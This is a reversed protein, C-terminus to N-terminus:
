EWLADWLILSVLLLHKVLVANSNMLNLDMLWGPLLRVCMTSQEYITRYLGLSKTPTM